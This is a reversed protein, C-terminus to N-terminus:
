SGAPYKKGGAEFATKARHVTLGSGILTNNCKKATLLDPEDAPLINGGDDRQARDRCGKEFEARGAGGGGGGVGVGGCGGITETFLGIMNHFQCTTSLGGNFWTSYGAGTRITAGPMDEALFREVIAHSVREVGNIVLPPINYNFPDRCPPIFMVAGAPGTQ